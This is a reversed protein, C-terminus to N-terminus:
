WNPEFGHNILVWVKWAWCLLGLGLKKEKGKLGWTKGLWKCGMMWRRDGVQECKGGILGVQGNPRGMM